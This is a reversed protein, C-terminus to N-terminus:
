THLDLGPPVCYLDLAANLRCGLFGHTSCDYVHMLGDSGCYHIASGDCSPVSDRQLCETGLPVCV